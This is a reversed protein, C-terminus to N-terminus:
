LVTLCFLLVNLLSINKHKYIDKLSVEGQGVCSCGQLEDKGRVGEEAPSATPQSRLPLQHLLLTVRSWSHHPDSARQLRGSGGGHSLSKWAGVPGCDPCRFLNKDCVLLCGKCTSMWSLIYVFLRRINIHEFDDLIIMTFCDSKETFCNVKQMGHQSSPVYLPPPTETSTLSINDQSPLDMERIVQPKLKGYRLSCHRLSKRQWKQTTDGDKSVGFWDATGRFGSVYVKM